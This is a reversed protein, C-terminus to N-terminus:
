LSIYINKMKNVSFVKLLSVKTTTLNSHNIRLTSINLLLYQDWWDSNHTFTVNTLSTLTSSPSSPSWSSQARTEITQPRHLPLHTFHLTQPHQDCVTAKLKVIRLLVFCVRGGRVESLLWYICPELQDGPVLICQHHYTTNATSLQPSEGSICVIM